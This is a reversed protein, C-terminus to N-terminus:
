ATTFNILTYWSSVIHGAGLHSSLESPIAVFRYQVPWPNSVREPKLKMDVYREGGKLCIIKWINMQLINEILLELFM